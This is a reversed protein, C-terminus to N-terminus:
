LIEDLEDDGHLLTLSKFEAFPNEPPEDVSDVDMEDGTHHSGNAQSGDSKQAISKMLSKRAMSLRGFMSKEGNGIMNNGDRHLQLSAHISARENNNDFTQQRTASSAAVSESPDASEINSLSTPPYPPYPVAHPTPSYSPEVPSATRSSPTPYIPPHIPSKTTSNPPHSTSSPQHQHNSNSANQTQLNSQALLSEVTPAVEDIEMTKAKDRSLDESRIEQVNVVGKSDVIERKRTEIDIMEEREALLTEDNALWEQVNAWKAPGPIIPPKMNRLLPWQISKFWPHSKIESAGSKSGLRKFEDKILLKRVLTKVTYSVLYVSHPPFMLERKLINVFTANRNPGKFPTRGYLMEFLLVGLTWWDVPAGHGNGIVEPSIYEETGVFSNTRFTGICGDTDVAYHKPNTLYTIHGHAAEDTTSHLSTKSSFLKHSKHVLLPQYFSDAKRSLDFDTLKIHGSPHLLINEPKLDRYIFGMLHLYELACLIEAAYFRAEEERLCKGPRSQLARYFEGGLCYEMCFYINKETHFAHYLTIIFPHNSSSLVDQESLVRKIKGRKLMEHKSLVKMAYLKNTGKRRVLYVRGVDGKGLLKIKIFHEPGVVCPERKKLTGFNQRIRLLYGPLNSLDIKGDKLSVRSKQSAKDSIPRHPQQQQQQNQQQQVAASQRLMLNQMIRNNALAPSTDTLATLPFPSSSDVPISPRLPTMTPVSHVDMMSSSQSPPISLEFPAIDRSSTGGFDPFNPVSQANRHSILNSSTSSQSHTSATQSNPTSGPQHITTDDKKPKSFGLTAFFSHSSKHTTHKADDVTQPVSDHASSPIENNHSNKHRKSSLRSFM